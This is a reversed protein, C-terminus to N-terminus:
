TVSFLHGCTLHTRRREAGQPCLQFSSSTFFGLFSPARLLTTYVMTPACVFAWRSWLSAWMHNVRHTGIEPLISEGEEPFDSLKGNRELLLPLASGIDVILFSLKSGELGLGALLAGEGPSGKEM